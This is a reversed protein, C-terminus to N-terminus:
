FKYGIHLAVVGGNFNSYSVDEFGAIELMQKLSEQDPHMRISEVLYEYSSKDRVIYEGFKPIVHFSYADYIKNLVKVTPKSFELILLRGGPKLVRYMAALAAEKHTVNRLGFAITICDFYDSQFPLHEADAQVYHINGLLNADILKDRGLALMNANIDSLIISGEKGIKKAMLFALDGTGAAVDLVHQGPRLDAAAVTMRKWVRHLGFSMVDNMLDYRKAVSDFVQGVLHVKDEDLVKKFGFHTTPM